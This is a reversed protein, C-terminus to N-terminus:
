RIAPRNTPSPLRMGSRSLMSKKWMPESIPTIRSSTMSPSSYEGVSSTLPSRCAFNEPSQSRSSFASGPAANARSIPQPGTAATTNAPIM